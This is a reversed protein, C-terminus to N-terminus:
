SDFQVDVIFNRHRKMTTVIAGGLAATPIARNQRGVLMRPGNNADVEFTKRLVLFNAM